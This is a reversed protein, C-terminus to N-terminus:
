HKGNISLSRRALLAMLFFSSSVRVLDVLATDWVLGGSSCSM